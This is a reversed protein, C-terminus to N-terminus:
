DIHSNNHKLWVHDSPPAVLAPLARETQRRVIWLAAGLAEAKPSGGLAPLGSEAPSLSPDRPGAYEVDVIGNVFDNYARKVSKDRKEVEWLM